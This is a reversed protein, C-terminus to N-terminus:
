EEAQRHQPSTNFLQASTLEIKSLDKDRNSATVGLYGKFGLNSLLMDHVCKQYEAGKKGQRV